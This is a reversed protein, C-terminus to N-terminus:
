GHLAAHLGDRVVPQAGPHETRQGPPTARGLRDGRDGAVRRRQRQRHGGQRERDQRGARCRPVFGRQRRHHRGHVNRARECRPQAAGLGALRALPRARLRDQRADRSRRGADRGHRDRRRRRWRRDLGRGVLGHRRHLRHHPEDLQRRGRSRLLRDSRGSRGHGAGHHGDRAHRRRVLRYMQPVNAEDHYREESRRGRWSCANNSPTDAATTVHSDPPNPVIWAGRVPGPRRRRALPDSDEPTRRALHRRM